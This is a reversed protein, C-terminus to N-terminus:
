LRLARDALTLLPQAVAGAAVTAVGMLVVTAGLAPLSRAQRVM